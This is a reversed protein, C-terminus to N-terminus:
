NNKILLIRTSYPTGRGGRLHTHQELMGQTTIRNQVKMQNTFNNVFSKSKLTKQSYHIDKQTRTLFSTGAQTSKASLSVKIASPHNM